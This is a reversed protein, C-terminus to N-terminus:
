TGRLQARLAVASFLFATGIVMADRSVSAYEFLAMPLLGVLMLAEPAIPMLRAASSRLVVAVLANTLRALYFLTLPGAGVWRGGIIAIVQPLYSLPSSFVISSFDVFERRDPDLPKNLKLWTQRLPQASIPRDLAHIARTGLFDESLEILSSPLIGGAVGDKVTGIM